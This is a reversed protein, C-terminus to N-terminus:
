FKKTQNKDAYFLETEGESISSAPYFSKDEILKNTERTQFEDQKKGGSVDRKTNERLKQKEFYRVVRRIIDFLSGIAIAIGLLKLKIPFDWFYLTLVAVIASVILLIEAYDIFKRVNRFTKMQKTDEGFVLQSLYSKEIDRLSM